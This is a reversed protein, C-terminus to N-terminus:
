TQPTAISFHSPLTQGLHQFIVADWASSPRQSRQASTNFYDAAYTAYHPFSSHCIFLPKDTM